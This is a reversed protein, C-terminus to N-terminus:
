KDEVIGVIFVQYFEIKPKSGTQDLELRGAWEIGEVKSGDEMGYDVTGYTMVENANSPNIFIGKCVHRRTLVGKWGNERFQLVGPHGLFTTPGMILTADKNFLDVYNQHALADAKPGVDSASYLANVFEIIPAPVSM